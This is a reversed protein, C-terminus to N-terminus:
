IWIQDIYIVRNEFLPCLKTNLNANYAIFSLFLTGVSSIYKIISITFTHKVVILFLCFFPVKQSCILLSVTFSHLACM